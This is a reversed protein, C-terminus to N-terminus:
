KSDQANWNVIAAIQTSTLSLLLNDRGSQLSSLSDFKSNDPIQSDPAYLEVFFLLAKTEGPNFILRNQFGVGNGGYPYTSIDSPLHDADGFSFFSFPVNSSNGTFAWSDSTDLVQDGSSTSLVAFERDAGSDSGCWIIAETNPIIGTYTFSIFGRSTQPRSSSIFMDYVVSYNGIMVPGIEFNGESLKQTQNFSRVLIGDISCMGSGDFANFNEGYSASAWGLAVGPDLISADGPGITIDNLNDWSIGSRSFSQPLDVPEPIAEWNVVTDLQSFSLTRLLNTEAYLNQLSVFESDDFTVDASLETFFLISQTQFPSLTM